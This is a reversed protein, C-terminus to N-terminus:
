PATDWIKPPEPLDLGTPPQFRYTMPLLRQRVVPARLLGPMASAVPRLMNAVAWLGRWPLPVVLKPWGTQQLTSIVAHRTPLAPDVLTFTNDIRRITAQVLAAACRTVHCMPLPDNTPAGFLLPGVAVGLHANWLHDVDYVIGPRLVTLSNFRAARALSEQEAKAGSYADRATSQTVLPTDDTLEGGIPVHHTDYVALSSALTLHGVGAAQMADIIRQTGGITLRAHDQPDGSMAAALHIVADCGQMADGLVSTSDRVTLDASVYTVGEREPGARRQVAVVELGADLAAQVTARGIFGTAGTILVRTVDGM